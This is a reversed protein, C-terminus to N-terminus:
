YVKLHFHSFYCQSLEEQDDALVPCLWWPQDTGSYTTCWLHPVSWAIDELRLATAVPLSHLVSSTPDQALNKNERTQTSINPNAKPHKSTCSATGQQKAGLLYEVALSACWTWRHMCLCVFAQTWKKDQSFPMKVVERQRTGETNLRVSRRGMCTCVTKCCARQSGQKLPFHKM